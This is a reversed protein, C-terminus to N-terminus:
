PLPAARSGARWAYFAYQSGRYLPEFAAARMLAQDLPSDNRALVYDVRQRRLMEMQADGIRSARLLRACDELRGDFDLPSRGADPGPCGGLRSSWAALRVSLGPPALVVGAVDPRGALFRLLDREGQSLYVRNRQRLASLSTEMRPALLLATTALAFLVAALSPTARRRRTLRSEIRALPDHLAAALLLAVPVGWLLRPVMWPTIWAGAARAALPNYAIAAPFVAASVLFRAGLSRRCRPLLAVAAMLAGVMLPHAILAAHAMFWGEGGSLILLQRHSLELLRANLAWESASLKFYEPPRLARLSWALGFVAAAVGAMAVTWRAAPRRHRARSGLAAGCAPLGIWLVAMPHLVVAAASLAAVLTGTRWRPARLMGLVAAQALPVLVALSLYKEEPLRGLLAMGAGEGRAQMDSLAYLALLGIALAVASWRRLVTRALALHGLLAAVMLVPVILTRYADLLEVGSLRVLLALVLGWADFDRLETASLVVPAELFHRVVRLQFWEDGGFTFGRGLAPVLLVVVIGAALVIVGPPVRAAAAPAALGPRGRRWAAAMHTVVLAATTGCLLVALARANGRVLLIPAANALLFALGLGLSFASAPLWGARRGLLQWLALGPAVWAALVALLWSSWGVWASGSTSAVPRPTRQTLAFLVVWAVALCASPLLPRWRAATARRTSPAAAELTM